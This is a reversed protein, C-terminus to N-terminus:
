GDLPLPLMQSPDPGEDDAAVLPDDIQIPGPPPEYGQVASEYGHVASEYGHVASEYGEAPPEEEKM